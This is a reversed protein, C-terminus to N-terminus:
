SFDGSSIQTMIKTIYFYHHPKIGLHLLVMSYKMEFFTNYTNSIKLIVAILRLYTVFFLDFYHLQLNLM